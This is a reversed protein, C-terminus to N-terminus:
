IFLGHVAALLPALLEDPAGCSGIIKPPFGTARHCDSGGSLLCGLTQSLETLKDLRCNIANVPHSLEFGDLGEDYLKRILAVQEQHQDPLYKGVHALLIQGGAAHVADRAESFACFRESPVGGSPYAAAPSSAKKAAVRRLAESRMENFGDLEGRHAMFSGLIYSSLVPAPHTPYRVALHEELEQRQWPFGLALLERYHEHPANNM